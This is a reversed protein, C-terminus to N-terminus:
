RAAPRLATTSTLLMAVLGTWGTQHMAGLGAGTDAHFYEHFPVLARLDPDDQLAGYSRLVPRRGDEGALFISTLRRTLEDAAAAVSVVNGSRAPLEVQVAEGAVAHYARLMEVALYNLPMWIPGRWNSNGGFLPTTSEAPEYDVRASGGNVALEFPFREHYRSLSRLGYPSLFEDEDFVRVLLRSLREPAVVRLVRSGDTARPFTHALHPKERELRDLAEALPPLRELQEAGIAAAAFLPVLGVASHVRLTASSGDGLRLRDYYFGDGADWLEDIASAIIAFHTALGAALGAYADDHEALVLAIRLLDLCYRAM